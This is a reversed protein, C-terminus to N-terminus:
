IKALFAGNVHAKFLARYALQRGKFSDHIAFYLIHPNYLEPVKGMGNIQYSSWKSTSPTNVMGVRISNLEFYRCLLLLYYKAEILCFEYRGEWLM